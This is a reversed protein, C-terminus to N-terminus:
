FDDFGELLFYRIEPGLQLFGVGFEELQGVLLVVFEGFLFGEGVALDELGRLGVYLEVAVGFEVGVLLDVDLVAVDHRDMSGVDFVVGREGGGHGLHSLPDLQLPGGVSVVNIGVIQDVAIQRCSNGFM